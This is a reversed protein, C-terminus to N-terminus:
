HPSDLLPNTQLFVVLLDSDSSRPSQEAPKRRRRDGRRSGAATQAAGARRADRLERAYGDGTGWALVQQAVSSPWADFGNLEASLTLAAGVITISDCADDLKRGHGQVEAEVQAVTKTLLSPDDGMAM